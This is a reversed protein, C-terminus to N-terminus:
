ISVPTGLAVISHQPDTFHIRVCYLNLNGFAVRSMRIPAFTFIISAVLAATPSGVLSRVLLFVALGSGVFTALTIVNYTAILSLGSQLLAGIWGNLLGLTHFALSVGTPHYLMNTYFPLLDGRSAAWQVWWLNWANQGSDATGAISTGFHMGLPYTALLALVLQVVSICVIELWLFRRTRTRQAPMPHEEDM